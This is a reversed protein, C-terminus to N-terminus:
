QPKNQNTNKNGDWRKTWGCLPRHSKQLEGWARWTYISRMVSCVEAWTAATDSLDYPQSLKNENIWTYTGKIVKLNPHKAKLLLAGCALEFPDEYKSNGVKAFKWDNIYARDGD